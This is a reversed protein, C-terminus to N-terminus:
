AKVSLIIFNKGPTKSYYFEEEAKPYFLKLTYLSKRDQPMLIYLKDGQLNLTSQIDEPWLAYDKRPYGANMGVLRTDVWYPFPIVFANDPSNGKEVFETIVNGIESTNWANALFQDAYKSFVLDYNQIMSILLLTLALIGGVFKPISNKINCFVVDAFNYFGVGIIVFVPVIAAGSRNLAPNEQPFALSMISPLMLIPLSILLSLEQWSKLNRYRKILIILGYLFFVGSVVDLAPRNPISNVWVVGNKYFFMILSKWLNTFFIVLVSGNIPSEMSTLRSLARFNFSALNELVYRFLPLFIILASFALLFFGNLAFIRNTRSKEKIIFLLFIVVVLLPVIRAPSYGHLGLGLFLGSLILQNFRKEALGKLLFFLAIATFLPYLPFRLGVRSIVNPWYAIGAFFSALIGVWKNFLQKGLLYIFPLTLFGLFITGLKLSTFTIGTNFVKIIAATFYFQIAERGTNRVFFIPTKGDLIDMVDLLKEAHDSFMEGPVQDLLYSRFFATILIVLFCIIYFVIPNKQIKSPKNNFQWVSFVFLAIGSIWFILNKLTFQNDNFLTFALALLILSPIFFWVKIELNPLLYQKQSTKEIPLLNDNKLSIWFFVIAACFFTIPFIINKQPPELLFQGVLAFTLGIILYKRNAKKNEPVAYDGSVGNRKVTDKTYFHSDLLKRRNKDFLSKLYDLVTPENM